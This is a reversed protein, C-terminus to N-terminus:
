AIRPLNLKDELERLRRRDLEQSFLRGADLFREISLRLARRLEPQEVQLGAWHLRRVVHLVVAPNEAAAYRIPDLLDDVLAQMDLAKAVVRLHGDEDRCYNSPWQRTGLRVLSAVLREIADSAAGIANIAPSLSRVAILSLQQFGFGIDGEYSRQDGVTLGESVPLHLDKSERRNSFVQAVVTKGTVFDGARVLLRIVADNEKAMEVLRDLNVARVFGDQPACVEQRPNTLLLAESPFLGDEHHPDGDKVAEPFLSDITYYLDKAVAAAVNEAQISSIVHHIFYVLMAVCLAALLIGFAVSISPVYRPGPSSEVRRMVLIGYLFTGLLTGLVVQNGSDRAFSKLVRTGFQNSALTLSVVTISFVVGAVTIASQSVVSLLDRAGTPDRTYIWALHKVNDAVRIQDLTLMLYAMGVCGAIMVAPLFWYTGRLRNWIKALPRLVPFVKVRISLRRVPVSNVPRRMIGSISLRQRIRAFTRGIAGM